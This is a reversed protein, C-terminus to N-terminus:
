LRWLNPSTVVPQPNLCDIERRIRKREAENKCVNHYARKGEPHVWLNTPADWKACLGCWLWNPNGCGASARMRRHLRTHFANDECIVLNGRVNDDRIENAHHVVAPLPLFHGLIIEVLMIHEFM